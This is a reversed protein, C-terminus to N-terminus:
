PSTSMVIGQGKYVEPPKVRRIRARSRAWWTSISVKVTLNVQKEIDVTIGVPLDMVVPHSYGVTLTLEGEGGGRSLRGRPDGLKKEVGKSVGLLM